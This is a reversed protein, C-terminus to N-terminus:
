VRWLMLEFQARWVLHNTLSKWDFAPPLAGAAVSQVLSIPRLL